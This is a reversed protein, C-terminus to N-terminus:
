CAPQRGLRQPAGAAQEIFVAVIDPDWQSGAGAKLRELAEAYGLRKRYPRHVTMADFSDAVSIV